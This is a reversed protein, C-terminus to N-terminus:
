LRAERLFLKQIAGQYKETDASLTTINEQLKALPIKASKMSSSLALITGALVGLGAGVPGFASGLSAGVGIASIANGAEPMGALNGIISGGFTAAMSAGAVKGSHQQWRNLRARRSASKFEKDSVSGGSRSGALTAYDKLEKKTAFPNDRVMEKFMSSSMLNKQERSIPATGKPLAPLGSRGQSYVSDYKDLGNRRQTKIGAALFKRHEQAKKVYDGRYSGSKNFAIERLASRSFKEIPIGSTVFKANNYIGRSKAHKDFFAGQIGPQAAGKAIGKDSFHKINLGYSLSSPNDFAGRKQLVSKALNKQSSTSKSSQLIQILEKTNRQHFMPTKGSGRALNPIFGKAANKFPNSSHSDYYQQFLKSGKSGKAVKAMGADIINIKAGYKEARGFMRQLPTITDRNENYLRNKRNSNLLGAMKPRSFFAKAKNNLRINGEHLDHISIGKTQLLSDIGTGLNSFQSRQHASDSIVEKGIRKDVISRGISGIVKPGTVGPVLKNENIIKSFLYENAIDKSSTKFNVGSQRFHKVGIGNKLEFFDGQIGSGLLKGVPNRSQGLPGYGGAFNATGGSIKEIRGLQSVRELGGAQRIMAKNFVADAGSGLYNRVIVEHSNVVVKESNGANTKIKKSVPKANRGAGGIGRAIDSAERHMAPVLGSAATKAPKVTKVASFPVAPLAFGGANIRSLIAVRQQLVGNGRLIISNLEQENKIAILRLRNSEIGAEMESRTVGAGRGSFTGGLDKSFRTIVGFALKSFGVALAALGPGSIANILGKTASQFVKDIISSTDVGKNLSDTAESLADKVFGAINGVASNVGIKGIAAGLAVFSNTAENIRNVATRGLFESKIFAENQARSVVNLAQDFVSANKSLDQIIGKVINIQYVGGLKESIVSKQSDSLTDYTQAL